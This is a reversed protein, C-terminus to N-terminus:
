KAVWYPKRNKVVGQLLKLLDEDSAGLRAQSLFDVTGEQTMLCPKVMGDSTIRIRTCNMCFSGRGLSRVIEVRAYTGNFPIVYRKRDHLENREVRVSQAAFSSEVEALPHFFKRLDSSCNGGMPNLEILQLIAGRSAAFHTLQPVHTDNLGNLLVTNIKVPTLGARFAGDIGDVVLDIQDAGTIQEYTERDLTDLSVNIRSMGAEALEDVLSDLFIGNTTMSVEDFIGSATQVINVIDHRILPEGGTIKVKQIGAARATEFVKTIDTATMERAAAEQGEHHCYFCNQNCRGTVSLRM